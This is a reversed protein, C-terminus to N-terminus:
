LLQIKIKEKEDKEKIPKEKEKDEENEIHYQEVVWDTSLIEEQSPTWGVILKDKEWLDIHPTIYLNQLIESNLFNFSIINNKRTYINLVNYGGNLIIFKKTGHQGNNNWNPRYAITNANNDKLKLIEIVEAFSQRSCKFKLDYCNLLKKLSM